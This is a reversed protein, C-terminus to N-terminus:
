EVNQIMERLREISAKIEIVHRAIEVDALDPGTLLARPEVGRNGFCWWALSQRIRAM